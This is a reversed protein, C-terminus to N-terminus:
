MHYGGNVNLEQGTIYDGEAALFAAAKAIEETTAFRGLPIKAKIQAAIEEPIADVMETATFGPAIANATVNFKAMELALTKTFAIIGGKSASYNAQGFAGMQGVVSSINIIRGYRQNIMAPIAASTCYFTGNLNVNIVAAWDDDTMKRMTRDRTIGANNVLIDLRQWKELVEKVIRAAEGKKAVDGQVLMCEVGLAAIEAAASEAQKEDSRFNLAVHAGRRALEVAIARGIGRSAGTVLAVRGALSTGYTGNGNVNSATAMAYSRNDANVSVVAPDVRLIVYGGVAGAGFGPAFVRMPRDIRGEKVADHVAMLISASSTNGVREINFFIKEGPIGAAESLSLVMNKNAQHPVVLDIAERMPAGNGNPGPLQGLEGMMQKLYRTVLSKVEPGYVTINNDFEPNPWIISNVEAWPGSAYTQFVEVDSPEGAPAPAIVMAAAGDGFIMRSTRVTGIKDSFKEACVLLVPREIEQLLRVAEGVGYSMGACAAVIDSSNHTQMLGLEGSLGTAVSPILQSSTCSCFLVAGIESPKRKSKSLARRAAILAIEDLRLETYCRSEIGTKECIDAETMRSWCYAHNRILDANTCTVEGAYTAIAEIRPLVKFKEAVRVPPYPAVPESLALTESSLSRRPRQRIRPGWGEDSKVRRIFDMVADSRPYFAVVYDDDKLEGVQKLASASPDWSYENQLIMCQRMLAEIEPVPHLCDIVDERGYRLYDPNYRLLHRVHNKSDALAEAVTPRIPRLEGGASRRNRFVHQLIAFCRDEVDEDWAPPLGEYGAQFATVMASWDRPKYVPLFVDDRERPLDAFRIPRKEYMTLTYRNNWFRNLVLDRCLEYRTKYEGAQLRDAIEGDTPAKEGFDRRIVAAFQKLSKFVSFDLEPFFNGPFVIQGHSNIVFPKLLM